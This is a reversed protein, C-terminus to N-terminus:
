DNMNQIFARSYTPSRAFCTQWLMGDALKFTSGNTVGIDALKFTGGYTVFLIFWTAWFISLPIGSPFSPSTLEEDLYM